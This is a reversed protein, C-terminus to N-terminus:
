ELEKKAPARMQVSPGGVADLRAKYEEEDRWTSGLTWKLDDSVLEREGNVLRAVRELRYPVGNQNGYIYAGTEPDLGRDNIYFLDDYLSLQDLIRIKIGPILTSDVIAEGHVMVAHLGNKKDKHHAVYSHQDPDMELSWLIECNPLYEIKDKLSSGKEFSAFLQPWELPEESHQRLLKELDPQLTYLKMEVAAEDQATESLPVLEYYRFRFIRQPNGDFYFAALRGNKSVPILTCHFNEHGGGERPLLGLERDEVVQNYNDFDGQFNGLLQQWVQERASSLDVDSNSHLISATGVLALRNSRHHGRTSQWGLCHPFFSLLTAALFIGLSSFCRRRLSGLPSSRQHLGEGSAALDITSLRTTM